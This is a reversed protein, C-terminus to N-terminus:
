VDRHHVIFSFASSTPGLIGCLHLSYARAAHLDIFEDFRLSPFSGAQISEVSWSAFSDMFPCIFIAATFSSVSPNSTNYRPFYIVNPASAKINRCTNEALFYTLSHSRVRCHTRSKRTHSKRHLAFLLKQCNSTRRQSLM